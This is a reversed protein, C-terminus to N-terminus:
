KGNLSFAYLAQGPADPGGLAYGTGWYVVGNSIAAGGYCIDGSPYDWLISGDSAKMAYMHGAADASCAYVVGNAVTVPGPAGAQRPNLTQWLVKGTGAAMGVWGGYDVTTGNTLTWPSQVSNANASYVRTGDTASGWQLGGAVGGPGVQTSWKLAGTAPDLAWFTGSKQGAGVFSQGNVKFLMPAQGFDYDPGKNTPCGAVPDEFGPFPIGCAVNWADSPMARFTWKVAGTGADLAVVADFMDAAPVCEAREADTSASGLCSSVSDPVSYNNGTGIYVTDTKTDVAPSSGWVSAGTYGEPAMYTQWLTEGTSLDIANMSGRFDLPFGFRVLLEEYSATGVYITNGVITPSQTLLPYGGEFKKKWVLAGTAKDVALLYGDPSFSKGAQDGVILLNGAITPTTRSYDGPVGTYGPITSQWITAGTRADLAYLRGADDPVYLRGDEVAPTASVNGATPVRWKVALKSANGVGITTDASSRSNSLDSGWSTWNTGAAASASMAGSLALLLAASAAVAYRGKRM